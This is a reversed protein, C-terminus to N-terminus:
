NPCCCYSLYEGLGGECYIIRQSGEKVYLKLGYAVSEGEDEPLKKNHKM